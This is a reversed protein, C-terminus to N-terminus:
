RNAESLSKMKAMMPSSSPSTPASTTIASNRPTSNAPRDMASRAESSIPDMIAPPQVTISTNWANRFMAQTIPTNGVVPLGKGKMEDPPVDMSAENMKTPSTSDTDAASASGLM